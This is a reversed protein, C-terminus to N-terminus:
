LKADVLVSGFVGSHLLMSCNYLLISLTVDNTVTESYDEQSFLFTINFQLLHCFFLATSIVMLLKDSVSIYGSWLNVIDIASSNCVVICSYELRSPSLDVKFHVSVSSLSIVSM